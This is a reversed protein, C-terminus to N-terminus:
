CCLLLLLLLLLLLVIHPWSLARAFRQLQEGFVEPCDGGQVESWVNKSGKCTAFPGRAGEACLAYLVDRCVCLMCCVACNTDTPRM